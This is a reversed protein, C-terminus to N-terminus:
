IGRASKLASLSGPAWWNNLKSSFANLLTCLLSTQLEVEIGATSSKSVWGTLLSLFFFFFPFFLFSFFLIYLLLSPSASFLVTDLLVKGKGFSIVHPVPSVEKIGPLIMGITDGGMRRSEPILPHSCRPNSDPSLLSVSNAWCRQEWMGVARSGWVETSNAAKM